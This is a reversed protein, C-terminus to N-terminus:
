FLTDQVLGHPPVALLREQEQMLKVYRALEPGIDCSVPGSIGKMWRACSLCSKCHKTLQEEVRRREAKAVSLVSM